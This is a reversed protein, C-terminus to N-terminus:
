PTTAPDAHATSTAHVTLTSIGALALMRTPVTRTVTVTVEETTATVTGDAQQQALYARAAQAADHPRLTIAGSARLQALDVERAAARAADQSQGIVQAKAALAAGGDVVLALFLLLALLVVVTFATVSGDEGRGAGAPAREPSPDPPRPPPTM